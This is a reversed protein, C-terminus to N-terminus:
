SFHIYQYGEPDQAFYSTVTTATIIVITIIVVIILMIVNAQKTKSSSLINILPRM